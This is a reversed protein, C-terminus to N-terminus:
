CSTVDVRGGNMSPGGRDGVVGLAPDTWGDPDKRQGVEGSM